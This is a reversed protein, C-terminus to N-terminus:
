ELITENVVPFVFIKNALFLFTAVIIIAIAQVCHHPYMFSDVFIILIILNIFYGFFYAIFYRISSGLLSGRHSFTFKRNGIYGITAGIGYLISMTIKPTAGLYTILLYALYGISNSVIGVLIYRVLQKYSLQTKEIALLNSVQM